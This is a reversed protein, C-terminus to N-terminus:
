VKGNKRGKAKELRYSPVNLEIVIGHHVLRDIAAATTMPDKFIKEWKSFPLNSTLLISGREYRYALLTFLVEMEDRSQQVYGLDDIILAEFKSLKKLYSELKLDIKAKLLEQVLFSTSTFYVKKGSYLLSIGLACLLHTKGAGPKGFLLVNEKRDLFSADMLAKVQRSVKLPLRKLDFVDMNKDMPIKSQKIFRQIRNSERNASEIQLLELLIEEVSSDDSITKELVEDLSDRMGPLSITKLLIKIENILDSRKKM